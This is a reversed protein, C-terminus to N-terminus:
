EELPSGRFILLLLAEALNARYEPVRADDIIILVYV